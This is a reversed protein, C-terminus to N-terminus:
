AVTSPDCCYLNSHSSMVKWREDGHPCLEIMSFPLDLLESATRAHRLLYERQDHADSACTTVGSQPEYPDRKTLLEQIETWRLADVLM